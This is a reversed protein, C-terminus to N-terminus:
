RWPSRLITWFRNADAPTVSDLGYQLPQGPQPMVYTGFWRDWFSFLSGFNADTEHAQTSHHIRHMAPTVVLTRLARDVREPCRVNSHSYMALPLALVDRVIAIWMPLGLAALVVLRWGVTLVVHLPHARVNTTVDLMDDSHHVQHLRWLWRADHSLRHYLYDAADVLLVGCAVTLWLPWHLGFFLGVQRAELWQSAPVLLGGLLVTVLVASCLWLGLNRAGHAIRAGGNDRAQWAPVSELTFLLATMLVLLAIEAQQLHLSFLAFDDSAAM